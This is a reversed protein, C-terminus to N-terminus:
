GEASVSKLGIAEAYRLHITAHSECLVMHGGGMAPYAFAAPRCCQGTIRDGYWAAVVECEGTAALRGSIQGTGRCMPCDRADSM